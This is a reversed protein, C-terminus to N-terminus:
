CHEKIIIILFGKEPIVRHYVNKTINLTELFHIKKPLENDFQFYFKGLPFNLVKRNKLDFHWTYLSKDLNIFLRFIYNNIKLQLFPKKIVM